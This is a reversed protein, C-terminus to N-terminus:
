SGACRAGSMMPLQEAAAIASRVSDTLLSFSAENFERILTASLAADSIERAAVRYREPGVLLYLPELGQRLSRELETRSLAKM